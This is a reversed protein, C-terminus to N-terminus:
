SPKKVTRDQHRFGFLLAVNGPWLKLLRSRGLHDDTIARSDCARHAYSFEAGPRLTLGLRVRAFNERAVFACAFFAGPIKTLAASNTSNQFRM